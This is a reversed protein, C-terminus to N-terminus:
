GIEIPTIFWKCGDNPDYDYWAEMADFNVEVGEDEHANRWTEISEHVAAKAEDESSYIGVVSGKLGCLPSHAVANVIWNKKMM